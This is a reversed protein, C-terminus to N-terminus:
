ELLTAPLYFSTLLGKELSSNSNKLGYQLVVDHDNLKLVLNQTRRDATASSKGDFLIRFLAWQGSYSKSAIRNEGKYFNASLYGNQGISPWSISKWLRPGHRYSFLSEAERIDFQTSSTSMSSAKVRLQLALEQGTPGFFLQRIKKAQQIKNLTESRLSLKEGEIELLKLSGNEWYAFPQLEDTIFKDIRGQPKFFDAFDDIAVEGRGQLAFPFRGEIAQRYFSYVQDQWEKNLYDAGGNIVNKWAQQDLKKIWTAVQGPASSSLRRFTVLADQSGAAHAKAYSYFAKSPDNSSLAADFYTNLNNIAVLLDDVPAGKDEAALFAAYSSFAENVVYSPQLRMLKDGAIRNVRSVKKLGKAVKKLGLMKAAKANGKTDSDNESALTTNVVVAELVDILPSSAPERAIKVAYALDATSAYDKIEIHKLLEKWQYVYDSYYLRQIKKSLETLEAISAGSMDGQISKFENLQKRLLVSKVSLDIKSHGQRTYLEPLLYGHFDSKFHFMSSFDDGLQRRIDVRNRYEPMAQLRAYILREPSLGELHQTAVSILDDNVKLAHSYDSNFLDMMLLSVESISDASLEGQDNLTDILYNIMENQDLSEPRFLMQYYRLLEFVKSSNGLNVYVYLESSLLDAIDPLLFLQLQQQYVARIKQATNEQKLSVRQYWPLPKSGQQDVVRLENLVPILAALELRDEHLRNIDSRYLSLATIAQSRFAEDKNWNDRMQLGYLSILSALAVVFLSRSLLYGFHRNKNVGVLGAEPLIVHSFIRSSFLSRRGSQQTQIAGTNFSTKEAMLQALLDYSVGKKETTLLYLGRLWVAQRVRNERGINSLLENARDFFVRLQYPLAIISRSENKHTERLLQFQQQSLNKLLEQCSRDLKESDFYQKDDVPFTVGFPNEVDYGSYSTFFNVFDAISDAKTFVSYVPLSLGIHEGLDLIAEQFNSSTKQRESKDAQLFKDCGVVMVIGNAAQRPRYKLLQKAFVRWLGNYIGESDFLRDGVEIVVASDNSWFRLYQNTESGDQSRHLVPEFNNQLLLSSTAEKESGILVYWPLDYLSKLRRGRVGRLQKLAAQFIHGITKADQKFLILHEHEEVKKNRHPYWYAFFLAIMAAIFCGGMVVSKFLAGSEPDTPILFWALAFAGLFIVALLLLKKNLKM